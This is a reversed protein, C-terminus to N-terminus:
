SSASSSYILLQPMGSNHFLGEVRLYFRCHRGSFNEPQDDVLAQKARLWVHAEPSLYCSGADPWHIHSALRILRQGAESSDVGALLTALDGMAETFQLEQLPPPYASLDSINWEPTSPRDAKHELYDMIQTGIDLAEAVSRKVQIRLM